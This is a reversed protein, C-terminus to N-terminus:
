VLKTHAGPARTTYILNLLDQFLRGTASYFSEFNFKFNSLFTMIRSQVQLKYVLTTKSMFLCQPSIGSRDFPASQLDTPEAKTPEFGVRAVM